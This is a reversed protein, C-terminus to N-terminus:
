NGVLPYRRATLLNLGIRLLYTSLAYALNLLFLYRCVVAIVEQQSEDTGAGFSSAARVFGQRSRQSSQARRILPDVNGCSWLAFTDLPAISFSPPRLVVDEPVFNKASSPLFACGARAKTAVATQFHEVM